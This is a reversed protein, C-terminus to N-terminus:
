KVVAKGNLCHVVYHACGDTKDGLNAKKKDSVETVGNECAVELGANKTITGELVSTGNLTDVMCSSTAEVNHAVASGNICKLFVDDAKVNRAEVKGNHVEAYLKDTKIDTVLVQNSEAEIECLGIDEPLTVIVEPIGKTLWQLWHFSSMKETQVLKVGEQNREIEFKDKECNVYRVSFADSGKVTIRVDKMKAIFKRNNEM